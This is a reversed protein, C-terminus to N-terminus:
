PSSDVGRDGQDGQSIGGSVVGAISVIPAAQYARAADSASAFSQDSLERAQIGISFHDGSFPDPTVVLREGEVHMAYGAADAQDDTWANCFTLSALDGARVFLYDRLLDELSVSAVQALCQNRAAEMRVFFPTWERNSRYRRYVHQAHHAVLAAAYPTPALREVARPWVGRRIEGPANIFDCVRGTADDIIPAADVERWGNDHEEIALMIWSRRPSEHLGDARWHQMIRAALAAHDPQTILFQSTGGPRIIM